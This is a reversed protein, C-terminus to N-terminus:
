ISGKNSPVPAASQKEPEMGRSCLACYGVQTPPEPEDSHIKHCKKQQKNTQPTKQNKKLCSARSGHQLRLSTRHMKTIVLIYIEHSARKFYHM